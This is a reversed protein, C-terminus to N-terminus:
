KRIILISACGKGQFKQWDVVAKPSGDTTNFTIGANRGFYWNNAQKSQAVSFTVGFFLCSLLLRRNESYNM